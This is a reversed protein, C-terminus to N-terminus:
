VLAFRCAAFAFLAVAARAIMAGVQRGGFQARPHYRQAGRRQNSYDTRGIAGIMRTGTAEYFKKSMSEGTHCGWSKVFANRAFIM